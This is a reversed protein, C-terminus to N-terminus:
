KKIEKALVNQIDRDKSLHFLIDVETDTLEDNSKKLLLHYLWVKAQRIDLEDKKMWDVEM